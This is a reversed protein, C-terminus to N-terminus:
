KPSTKHQSFFPVRYTPLLSALINPPGPHHITVLFFNTLFISRRLLDNAVHFIPNCLPWSLGLLPPNTAVLRPSATACPVSDRTRLSACATTQLIILLRLYTVPRSDNTYTPIPSTNAQLTTTSPPPFRRLSISFRGTSPFVLHPDAQLLPNLVLYSTNCPGWAPFLLTLNLTLNSQPCFKPLVLPSALSPSPPAFSLFPFPFPFPPSPSLIPILHSSISSHSPITLSVLM